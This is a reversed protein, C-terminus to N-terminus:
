SIYTFCPGLFFFNRMKDPSIGIGILKMSVSFFICFICIKRKLKKDKNKKTKFTTEKVNYMCYIYISVCVELINYSNCKM